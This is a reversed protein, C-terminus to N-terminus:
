PSVCDRGRGCARVAKRLADIPKEGKDIWYEFIDEAIASKQMRLARKPETDAVIRRVLIKMTDLSTDKLALILEQDQAQVELIKKTQAELKSFRADHAHTEGPLIIDASHNRLKADVEADTAYGNLFTWVAGVTICVGM